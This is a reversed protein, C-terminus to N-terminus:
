CGVRRKLLRGAVDRIREARFPKEVFERVGQARLNALRRDGGRGSIVVVPVEATTGAASMREIMEEGTMVPMCLDAFVLDIGGRALIELAERGNSAEHVTDIELASLRLAKAIVSRAVVSDDVLLIRYAM